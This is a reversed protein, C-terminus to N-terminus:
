YIYRKIQTSIYLVCTTTNMGYVIRTENMRFLNFAFGECITHVRIDLLIGKIILSAEGDFVGAVTMVGLGIGSSVDGSTGVDDVCSSDVDSLM